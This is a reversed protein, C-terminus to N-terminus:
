TGILGIIMSKNVIKHAWNVVLIMVILTMVVWVIRGKTM